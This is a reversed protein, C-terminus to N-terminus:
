NCSGKASVYQQYYRAECERAMQENNYYDRYVACSRLNSYYTTEAEQLCRQKQEQQLQSDDNSTPTPANYDYQYKNYDPYDFTYNSGSQTPQQAQAPKNNAWANNFNDCEEQTTQFTKGDPGTCIIQNIANKQVPASKKQITKTGPTPSPAPTTTTKPLAQETKPSAFGLKAEVTEFNFLMGFFIFFTALTVLGYVRAARTKISSLIKLMLMLYAIVGSLVVLGVVVLWFDASSSPARKVFFMCALFVVMSMLWAWYTTRLSIHRGENVTEGCFRCKKAEPLIQEKCHPCPLRKENM